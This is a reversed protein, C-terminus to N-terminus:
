GLATLGGAVMGGIRQINDLTGPSRSLDALIKQAEEETNYKLGLADLIQKGQANVQGTSMDFLHSMGSLGALKNQNEQQKLQAMADTNASAVDQGMHRAMAVDEGGTGLGGAAARRRDAASKLVDYTGQVGRTARNLFTTEDSPSFGGTDAFNKYGGYSQGYTEDARGINKNQESQATSVVPAIDSKAEGVMNNAQDTAMNKQRKAM